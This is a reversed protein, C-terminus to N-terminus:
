DVHLVSNLEGFPNPETKENFPDQQWQGDIVLRYSYTGPSLTLKTEWSGSNDIKHMPTQQPQWNNFDGAIQVTEAKPFLASFIVDGNNRCVGYSLAPKEIAPKKVNSKTVKLVKM